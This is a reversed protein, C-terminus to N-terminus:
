IQQLKRPCHPLWSLHRILFLDSNWCGDMGKFLFSVLHPFFYMKLSEKFFFFSLSLCFFFFRINILKRRHQSFYKGRWWKKRTKSKLIQWIKMNWVILYLKINCLATKLHHNLKNVFFGLRVLGVRYSFFPIVKLSYIELLIILHGQCGFFICVLKCMIKTQMNRHEQFAWDLKFTQFCVEIWLM